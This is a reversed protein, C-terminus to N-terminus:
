DPSGASGPPIPSRGRHAAWYGPTDQGSQQSRRRLGSRTGLRSSFACEGLETLVLGLNYHAEASGPDAQLAQNFCEIAHRYQLQGYLVLGLNNQAIVARPNRAVTDRWLTEEDTFISLHQRSLLGLSILAATAIALRLSSVQVISAVAACALAVIGISALYQFHDAVFSYRFFFINFFGLVPLLAAVFYACGFLGARAWTRQRYRWAMAVVAVIGLWAIWSASPKGPVSWRPYIFSLNPPWLLKGAYFWLSRDAIVFRDVLGLSWAAQSQVRGQQEIITLLAMPLAILFFPAIRLWDRRTIQRRQWQACLLLVLPLIVTSSKSLVAAVACGVSGAYWARSGTRESQLFSLVALFAFAGSQINKLETIWAVSEVNVPHIAWVAAAAWAARVQLRRLTLYILVANLGHLIVNVAHYPLPNLGWLQRQVWFTTLTLPYYRSVSLSSWIRVLGDPSTMAPNATLHDDDDWIFGAHRVPWYVVLTLALLALAPAVKRASFM